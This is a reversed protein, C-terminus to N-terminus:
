AGGGVGAIQRHWLALARSNIAAPDAGGARALWAANLLDRAEFRNEATGNPVMLVHQLQDAYSWNDYQAGGAISSVVGFLKYAIEPVPEVNFDEEALKLLESWQSELVKIARQYGGLKDMERLTELIAAARAASSPHTPNDGQAVEFRLLLASLAYCPGVCYTAFIDAFFENLWHRWKKVDADSRIGKGALYDDIFERVAQSRQLGDEWSTLRYAAFHGFEHAVVPVDWIGAPPFRLRIIQVFDTFSDGVDPAIVPPVGLPLKACLEAVLGRALRAAGSDIFAPRGVAHLYALVERFMITDAEERVALSHWNVASACTVPSQRNLLDRSAAIAAAFVPAACVASDALNLRERLAELRDRLLSTPDM